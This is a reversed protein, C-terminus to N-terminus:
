SPMLLSATTTCGKALQQTPSPVNSYYVFDDYCHMRQLPCNQM